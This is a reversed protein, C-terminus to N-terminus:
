TIRWSDVLHALEEVNGNLIMENTCLIVVYQRKVSNWGIWIVWVVVTLNDVQVMAKQHTGIDPAAVHLPIPIEWKDQVVQSVVNPHAVVTTVLVRSRM